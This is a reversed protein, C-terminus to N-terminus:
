GARADIVRGGLARQIQNKIARLRDIQQRKLKGDLGSRRIIDIRNNIDRLRRQARNLPARLQLIERNSEAVEAADALNGMERLEKMDSYARGAERLGEYFVTGYKTYRDEDGLNKYFRRVPQYEYWRQAPQEKGTAVRWAVDASSAAWTGVQGFYGGILHDVQVPSLAFPNLDPDGIAGITSNLGQSVWEGAKSTSARKRLEPSLRDMGMSEIPRKTFADYNSYVDLSPQFAQPVVTFAFTDTMMHLMRERFLGGTAKDDVFQQTIREAMTAIAGVEFPKPIFFAQDGVRFFWYTDKQWDELKEYEEDDQNHLYLAVTALTLAGTVSWFRGAMQKDSASAQEGGFISKIVNTGPKVGSRYIKDLGQIRANMFPVIDILFRVAPWAGHSSFDILDRAEFAAKLKGQGQNQDYIAARNVNETANNVDNWKAWGARIVNPIAMPGDIIRADRMNRTLQARLEDPNSGYLHGFNFSAGSAMMQARLRENKYTKAGVVLNKFVNKSVDNTATAQLTDRILNAIMFQPTTTTLNTFLRKFGRMIKMAANNLGANNLATLSQFVLPDDIEYYAQEGDEMIFTSTKTDRNSSSVKRAIGLAQANEIAQAAAQNKLSADLLHNFNMMTNQLLDNLNQTGGKLRKVAQQRSLGSTSLQGTPKQEDESIRYFPVYFENAWLDRQDTTLQDYEATFDAEGMEAKLATRLEELAGTNGAQAKKALDSRIGNKQAMFTISDADEMGKRLLGAQDAIALVDDRYQQFESFVQEYTEVRDRGDPLTGRNWTEMGAIEAETFLNERGEDLLKRSRNGAIWGMFRQIEASGSDPDNHSALQALVSGLGKSDDDKLDIVKQDPDMELRGTHLMAHLAGNAANAMRALVWSSRSINENLMSEGLLAEDMAKFSAVKDVAGQRIKLGANESVEKWWEMARRPMSKPGIKAAAAKDDVSFDDFMDGISVRAKSAISFRIDPNAADFTGANDTASKIQTSEFAVYTDTPVSRDNGNYNDRVNRIIVGDRGEERAQDIVDSTKGRAQAERWEKGKADLILPNELKLYAAVVGPESNQYDFARTDDAYSRAAAPSKAFWYAGDQSGMGFREKQTRFTGDENIFRADPSGHYVVLPEGSGDVVKSGGFWRTFAEGKQAKAFRIGPSEVIKRRRLYQRSQEGLALVDTYSWAVSPILKRLMERIKAVARQWAKPRHGKELLHAVMEEAIQIRDERNGTDLFPYERKVEALAARGQPSNPLSRYLQLMVTDLGSGLVGRIGKHGVAEHVAVEIGEQITRVNSAIVYLEGDVYLGRVAARDVGRRDIEKRAKAPLGDTTEVVRTETLEPTNSLAKKVSESLATAAAKGSLKASPASQQPSTVGDTSDSSVEARAADIRERIRELSEAKRFHGAEGQTLSDIGYGFEEKLYEDLPAGHKRWLDQRMKEALALQGEKGFGTLTTAGVVNGGNAEIHGRLSALTGGMTLTDDVILYDQEPTVEGEFVAHNALRYDSGEGTRKVSVSQIIGQDVTLGLDKAIRAAYAVPIMNRGSAEEAFASVVIPKRDGIMERVREIAADDVIDAVLERAAEVDGAKADKYLPHKDATGLPAAFQVKPFDATWSTRESGSRGALSLMVARGDDSERAEIEESKEGRDEIPTTVEQRGVRDSRAAESNGESDAGTDTRAQDGDRPPLNDAQEDTTAEPQSGAEVEPSAGVELTKARGTDNGFGELPTSLPKTIDGEKVWAKFDDMGMKTVPGVKWGDEYNALYGQKASEEDGFGMMVKHEDFMGNADQQDIVFVQDSDEEPGIFVDLNDGDAAKTGKIDGYHHAMTSEWKKGDPDTGSRTSGKPNEIAIELGQIRVRGKKYNGAEKQDDTPSTDTKAAAKTVQDYDLANSKVQPGEANINTGVQESLPAIAEQEPSQTAEPEVQQRPALNLSVRLNEAITEARVMFREAQQLNGGQIAQEARQRMMNLNNLRTRSTNDPAQARLDEADKQVEQLRAAVVEQNPAQEPEPAQQGRLADARNAERNIIQGASAPEDEGSSAPSISQKTTVQELDQALRAQQQEARQMLRGALNVDGDQAAKEARRLIGSINQLRTSGEYGSAKASQRLGDLGDMASQIRGDVEETIQPDNQIQTDDTRNQARDQERLGSPLPEDQEAQEAEQAARVQDLADGGKAAVEARAAQIRDVQTQVRSREIMGSPAGAISGMLGGAAAEDIIAKVDVEDLNALLSEGNNEVWYNAHQGILGQLGETTAETMLGTLSGRGAANKGSRAAQSALDRLVNDSIESAAKNAVDNAGVRRLIQIPLLADLSGALAGHALSVDLDQTEGMLAGTEMGASATFAGLGQGAKTAAQKAAAGALARGALGGVGGGAVAVALTPLLNGATFRAWNWADGVGKIDTFGYGLENEAAEAMNSQYIEKGSDWLTDSEVIDGAAQILGGGMAQVQDIGASLGGSFGPTGREEPAPGPAGSVFRNFQEDTFTTFEPSQRIMSKIEDDSRDRLSPNKERITDLVSM